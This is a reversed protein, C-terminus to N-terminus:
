LIGSWRVQRGLFRYTPWSAVTLVRYAVVFQSLISFPPCCPQRSNGQKNLRCESCMLLFAPSSSNCAPIVAQLQPPLFMLLRLCTCLIARIAPLSSSSFLRKILTFSLSVAPKLSFILFSLDHCRAGNSWPLRFPFIHFYHCIEEEQARFDSHIIVAAM